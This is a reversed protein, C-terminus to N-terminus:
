KMTGIFRRDERRTAEETRYGEFEVMAADADAKAVIYECEAAVAEDDVKVYAPTLRATAKREEASKGEVALLCTDLIREARKRSAHARAKAQGALRLADAAVESVPRNSGTM